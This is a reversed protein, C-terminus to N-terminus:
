RVNEGRNSFLKRAYEERNAWLGEKVEADAIKSEEASLRSSYGRPAAIVRGPTATVPARRVFQGTKPDKVPAVEDDNAAAPTEYRDGFVERLKQGIIRYMVADPARQKKLDEAMEGCWNFADVSEPDEDDLLWANPGSFFKAAQPTQAITEAIEEAEAIEDQKLPQLPKLAQQRREEIAEVEDVDGAKVAAAREAKFKAELTVRQRAMSESHQANIRSMQDQLAKVQKRSREGAGIRDALFQAAPTWKSTDGKWEKKPKWGLSRAIDEPTQPAGDDGDAEVEPADIPDVIDDDAVPEAEFAM